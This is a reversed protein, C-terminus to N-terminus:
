SERRDAYRKLTVMTAQIDLPVGPTHDPVRTIYRPILVFQSKWSKEQRRRERPTKGGWVGYEEDEGRYLCEEQVPCQECVMKAVEYYTAETQTREGPLPPFWIDHHKNKCLAEDEWSSM